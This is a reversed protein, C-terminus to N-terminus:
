FLQEVQHEIGVLGAVDDRGVWVASVSIRPRRSRHIRALQDSEAFAWDSGGFACSGVVSPTERSVGFSKYHIRKSTKGM